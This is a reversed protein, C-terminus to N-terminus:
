SGPGARSGARSPGRDPRLRGLRRQRGAAGSRSPARPLSCAGAGGRDRVLVKRPECRRSGVGVRRHGVEGVGAWPLVTLGTVTVSWNRPESLRAGFRVVGGVPGEATPEYLKPLGTRAAAGAVGDLEEYLLAGPCATANADSPRLRGAPETAHRRVPLPRNLASRRPRRRAALGSTSSREARPM